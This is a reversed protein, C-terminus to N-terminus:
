RMIVELNLLKMIIMIFRFTNSYQNTILNYNQKDIEKYHELLTEKTHSLGFDTIYFDRKNNKEEVLINREAFDNHIINREHLIDLKKKIIKKDM